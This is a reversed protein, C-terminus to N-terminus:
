SGQGTLYSVGSALILDFIWLMLGVIFVMVGVILTTQMTEKKSPWVVKKVEIIASRVFTITDKGLVTQAAIFAAVGFMFLLGLVRMLVSYEPFVYFLILAVVVILAAISLKLKDSM